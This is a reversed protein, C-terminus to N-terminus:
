TRQDIAEHTSAGLGDPRLDCQDPAPARSPRLPDLTPAAAFGDGRALAQRLLRRARVLRSEITTEPVGLAEAVARQSLGEVSRLMLPERYEAPLEALAALVAAVEDSAPDPAPACPEGELPVAGRRRHASRLVNLGLRRLWPRFAAPDRLTGIGRTLDYATEQLLDQLESGRAGAAALVVALWGRADRWVADLAHRDGAIAREILHRSDSASV